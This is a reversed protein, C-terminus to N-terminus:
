NRIIEYVIALPVGCREIAYVQKMNPFHEEFKLDTNLNTTVVIYNIRGLTSEKPLPLVHIDERVFWPVLEKDFDISVCANPIANENLYAVAELNSLLWYDLEYHRFAGGVGGAFSNFYVYEFPHLLVIGILGPFLLVAVFLIRWTTKNLKELILDACIGAFIFVPPLIFLFHRFGNYIVPHLIVALIVPGVFWAGILGILMWDHEKRWVKIAAIVMGIGSLVLAPETLQM